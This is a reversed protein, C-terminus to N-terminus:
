QQKLPIRGLCVLSPPAQTTPSLPAILSTPTTPAPTSTAPTAAAVLYEDSYDSDRGFFDRDAHKYNKNGKQGSRKEIRLEDISDDRLPYLVRLFEQHQEFPAM